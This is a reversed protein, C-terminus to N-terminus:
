KFELCIKHLQAESVTMDFAEKQGSYNWVCPQIMHQRRQPQNPDPMQLLMLDMGPWHRYMDDWAMIKLYPYTM